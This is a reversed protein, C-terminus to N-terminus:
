GTCAPVARGRRLDAIGTGAAGRLGFWHAPVTVLALIAALALYTHRWDLHAALAATLPAFVTSALGGAFTLITLARVPDRTLAAFAPSYLV